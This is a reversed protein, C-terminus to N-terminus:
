EVVEGSPLALLEARDRDEQALVQRYIGLDLHDEIAATIIEALQDPWGAFGKPRRRSNDRRTTVDTAPTM